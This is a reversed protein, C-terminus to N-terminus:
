IKVRCSLIEGYRYEEEDILSTGFSHRVGGSKERNKSSERKSGLSYAKPKYM